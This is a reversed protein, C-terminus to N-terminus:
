DAAWAAIGAKTRSLIPAAALRRLELVAGRGGIPGLRRRFSCASHAGPTSLSLLQGFSLGFAGDLALVVTPYLLTLLHAFFHGIGSFGLALLAARRSM